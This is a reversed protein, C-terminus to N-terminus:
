PRVDATPKEAAETKDMKKVARTVTEQFTSDIDEQKMQIDEVVAPADKEAKKSSVSPLVDAKDSGKTGWSVDHRRLPLADTRCGCCGAFTELM